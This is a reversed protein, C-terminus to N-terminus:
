GSIESFFWLKALGILGPMPELRRRAFGQSHPVGKGLPVEVWARHVGARPLPGWSAEHEKKIGSKAANPTGSLDQVPKSRGCQQPSLWQQERPLFQLACFALGMAMTPMARHGHSGRQPSPWSDAWLGYPLCGDWAYLPVAPAMWLRRHQLMAGWLVTKEAQMQTICMVEGVQITLAKRLGLPCPAGSICATSSVIPPFGPVLFSTKEDASLYWWTDQFSSTGWWPEHLGRHTGPAWLYRGCPGDWKQWGMVMMVARCTGWWPGSASHAGHPDGFVSGPESETSGKHLMQEENQHSM